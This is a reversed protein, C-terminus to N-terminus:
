LNDLAGGLDGSITSKGMSIVSIGIKVWKNVEKTKTKFYEGEEEHSGPFECNEDKHMACEFKLFITNMISKKVEQGVPMPLTKISKSYNAKIDEMRSNVYDVM